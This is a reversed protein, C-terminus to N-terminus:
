RVFCVRNYKSFHLLVYCIGFSKSLLIFWYCQFQWAGLKKTLKRGTCVGVDKVGKGVLIIIYPIEPCYM